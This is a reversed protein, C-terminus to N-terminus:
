MGLYEKCLIDQMATCIVEDKADKKLEALRDTIFGPETGLEGDLNKVADVLGTFALLYDANFM